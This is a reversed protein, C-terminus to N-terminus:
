KVAKGIPQGQRLNDVLRTEEEPTLQRLVRAPNGAVISLAPMDSTVVANAGIVCRSGITVGPLVVAGYGIWVYDGLIVPMAGRIPCHTLLAAHTGIVCHNGVTILQPNVGDLVGQVVVGDGLDAV